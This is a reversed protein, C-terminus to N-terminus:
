QIKVFDYASLVRHKEDNKIVLCRFRTEIKTPFSHTVELHPMTEGLSDIPVPRPTSDKLLGLGNHKEM